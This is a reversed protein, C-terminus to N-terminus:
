RRVIVERLKDKALFFKLSEFDQFLKELSRNNFVQEPKRRGREAVLLTKSDHIRFSYRPASEVKDQSQFVALLYSGPKVITSLRHVTAALLPASLYELM